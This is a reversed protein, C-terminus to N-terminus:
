TRKKDAKACSVAPAARVRDERRGKKPRVSHLGRVFSTALDRAATQFSFRFIFATMGPVFATREGALHEHSHEAAAALQHAHNRLQYPHGIEAAAAVVVPTV